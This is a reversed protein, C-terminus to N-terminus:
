ARSFRVRRSRFRPSVDSARATVIRGSADLSGEDLMKAAALTTMPFLRTPCCGTGNADGGSSVWPVRYQITASVDDLEEFPYSHCWLLAFVYALPFAIIVPKRPQSFGVEGVSM